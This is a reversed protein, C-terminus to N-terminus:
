EAYLAYLVATAFLTKTKFSHEAYTDTTPTWLCRSAMTLAAHELPGISVLCVFKYRPLGLDRARRKAQETVDKAMQGINPGYDRGTLVEAMTERLITLLSVPSVHKTPELQYTNEYSNQKEPQNSTTLIVSTKLKGTGSQEVSSRRDSMMVSQRRTAAASM